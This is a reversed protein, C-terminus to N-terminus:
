SILGLTRAETATMATVTATQVPAGEPGAAIVQVPDGQEFPPQFPGYVSAASGDGLDVKFVIDPEGAALTFGPVGYRGTVQIVLNDAEAASGGVIPVSQGNSLPGFSSTVGDLPPAIAVMVFDGEAEINATITFAPM